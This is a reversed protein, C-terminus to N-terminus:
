IEPSTATLVTTLPRITLVTLSKHWQTHCLSEFHRKRSASSCLVTDEPRPVFGSVKLHIQNLTDEILHDRHVELVLFPCMASKVADELEDAKSPIEERLRQAQQVRAQHVIANQYEVRMQSVADIKLVRVQTWFSILGQDTKTYKSLYHVIIKTTELSSRWWILKLRTLFANQLM